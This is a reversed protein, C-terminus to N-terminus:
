AVASGPDVPRDPRLLVVGDETLAGIVLVESLFGGVRMSEFGTVAVVQTGVVDDPGYLSTIQASSQKTGDDGFDIWLALSPNQAKENVECRVVTGVRIVLAELDSFTPTTMMLCDISVVPHEDSNMPLALGLDTTM